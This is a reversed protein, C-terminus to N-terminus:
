RVKLQQSIHDFIEISVLVLSFCLFWILFDVISILILYVFVAVTLIEM